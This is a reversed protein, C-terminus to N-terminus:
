PVTNSFTIWHSLLDVNLTSYSRSLAMTSNWSGTQRMGAIQRARAISLVIQLYRVSCNRPLLVRQHSVYFTYCRMRMDPNDQAMSICVVATSPEVCSALIQM